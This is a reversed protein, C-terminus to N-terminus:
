AKGGTAKEIGLRAGSVIDGPINGENDDAALVIQRALELLEPAASILNANAKLEDATIREQEDLMAIRCGNARIDITNDPTADITWHGPTHM